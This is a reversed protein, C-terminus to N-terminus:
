VVEYVVADGIRHVTEFGTIDLDSKDVDGTIAIYGIGNDNLVGMIDEMTQSHHLEKLTWSNFEVAPIDYYYLKLSDTTAIKSDGSLNENVWKWVGYDDGYCRELIKDRDGAYASVDCGCDTWFVSLYLSQIYLLVLVLTLMKSFVGLDNDSAWNDIIEIAYVSLFVVPVTVMVLYRSWFSSLVVYMVLCLFLWVAFFELDRRDRKKLLLVTGPIAFLIFFPNLGHYISADSYDIYSFLLRRTSSRLDFVTEYNFGSSKSMSNLQGMTEQMVMKDIYRGGGFPWIPNGLEVLNRLYWPCCMILLLFFAVFIEKKGASRLSLLLIPVIFFGLYTVSLTFAAFIFSSYLYKPGNKLLFEHLLYCSISFNFLFYIYHSSTRSFIVVFPMSFFIMASYVSLRGGFIKKSWEYTLLALLLAIILSNIRIADMGTGTFYYIFSSFVQYSSPYNSALGIGLSPGGEVFGVSKSIYMLESWHSYIPADEYLDPFHSIHLLISISFVSLLVLFVRNDNIYDILDSISFDECSRLIEERNMWGFFGVLVSYIFMIASFDMRHFIGLLIMFFSIIGIGFGFSLVLRLVSDIGEFVSLSIFYGLILVLIWVFLIGIM